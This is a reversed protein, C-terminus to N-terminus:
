STLSTVTLTMHVYVYVYIYIYVCVCVCVYTHTHTHRHSFIESNLRDTMVTHIVCKSFCYNWLISGVYCDLTFLLVANIWQQFWVTHTYRIIFPLCFLLFSFLHSCHQTEPFTKGKEEIKKEEATNKRLFMLILLCGSDAFM